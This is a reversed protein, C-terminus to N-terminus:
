FSFSSIGARIMATALQHHNMGRTGLRTKNFYVRRAASPNQRIKTLLRETPNM